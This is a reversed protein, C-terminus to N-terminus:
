PCISLCHLHSIFYIIYRYCSVLNDLLDVGGMGANYREILHPIPITTHKREKRNFRTCSGMPQVNHVNSAVYVGRNDKWSAVVQDEYYVAETFGRPVAQSELQKKNKLPLRTLRNQRMTGLFFMTIFKPFKIKKGSFFYKNTLNIPTSLFFSLQYKSVLSLLSLVIAFLNIYFM